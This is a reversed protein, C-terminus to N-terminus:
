GKVLRARLREVTTEAADLAAQADEVSMADYDLPQEGADIQAQLDDREKGLTDFAERERTIVDAYVAAMTIIDGRDYPALMVVPMDGSAGALLPCLREIEDASIPPALSFERVTARYLADLVGLQETRVTKRLWEVTFAPMSSPTGDPMVDCCARHIGEAVEALERARRSGVFMEKGAGAKQEAVSAVHKVAFAEVDDEDVPLLVRIAIQKKPDAGPFIASLPWLKFAKPQLTEIYAALAGEAPGQDQQGM